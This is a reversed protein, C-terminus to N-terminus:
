WVGPIWRHRPASELCREGLAREDRLTRYASLVAAPVTLVLWGLPVGVALPLAAYFLMRVAIAPHRVRASGQRVGFRLAMASLAAAIGLLNGWGGAIASGRPGILAYFVLISAVISVHIWRPPRFTAPAVGRRGVVWDVLGYLGILTGSTAFRVWAVDFQM